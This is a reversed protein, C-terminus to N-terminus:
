GCLRLMLETPYSSRLTVSNRWGNCYMKGAYLLRERPVTPPLRLVPGAGRYSVPNVTKELILPHVFTGTALVRTIFAAGLRAINLAAGYDRAGNWHCKSCWLWACWDEVQERNDPSRYTGAANGCRPCAHSTEEPRQWELRM